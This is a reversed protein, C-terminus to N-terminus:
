NKATAVEQTNKNRYYLTLGLVLASGIVGIAFGFIIVPDHKMIGYVTWVSTGIFFISYTLLSIHEASKHKWIVYAQPYYGCSMAAGLITVLTDFWAPTMNSKLDTETSGGVM